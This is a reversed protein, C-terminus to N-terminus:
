KRFKRGNKNMGKYNDTLAHCNPCLITLNEEKNNIYNGDIHHVELPSKKLIKHIKNWGCQSCKHGFKDLLYRKIFNKVIGNTKYGIDIGSKWNNINIKHRYNTQCKLSCFKKCQRNKCPNNCNVCLIKPKVKYITNNIKASCSRSCYHNPSKKIETNSKNFLKNCCFCNVEM